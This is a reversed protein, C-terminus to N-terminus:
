EAEEDSEVEVVVVEIGNDREIERALENAAERTDLLGDTSLSEGGANRVDYKTM